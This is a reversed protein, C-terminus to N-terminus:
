KLKYYKADKAHEAIWQGHMVGPMVAEGVLTYGESDPIHRLIFPRSAGFPIVIVDKPRMTSPGLGVFGRRTRFFDRQRAKDSYEHLEIPDDKKFRTELVEIAKLSKANLVDRHMPQHYDYGSFYYKNQTRRAYCFLNEFEVAAQLDNCVTESELASAWLAETRDLVKTIDILGANEVDIYKTRRDWHRRIFDNDDMNRNIDSTDEEAVYNLDETAQSKYLAKLSKGASETLRQLEDLHNRSEELIFELILRGIKPTSDFEGLMMDEKFELHLAEVISQVLAGPRQFSNYILAGSPSTEHAPIDDVTTVYEIRDFLMAKVKLVRPVIVDSRAHQVDEDDGCLEIEPPYDGGTKYKDPGTSLTLDQLQTLDPIYSPLIDLGFGEGYSRDVRRDFLVDLNCELILYLTVEELVELISKAYDPEVKAPHPATMNLLSYIRDRPDSVKFAGTTACLDHMTRQDQADRLKDFLLMPGYDGAVRKFIMAFHSWGIAHQGLYVSPLKKSFHFEQVCWLRLYWANGSKAQELRDHFDALLRRLRTDMDGHESASGDQQACLTRSNKNEDDEAPFTRVCTQLTVTEKFETIWIITRKAQRYIQGMKPVQHNMETVDSQNICIADIWVTRPSDVLRLRVLAQHLHLSVKFRKPQGDSGFIPEHENLIVEKMDNGPGWSYSLAEYTDQAASLLRTELELKLETDRGPLIHLLRIEEKSQFPKTYFVKNSEARIRASKAIPATDTQRYLFKKRQEDREEPTLLPSPPPRYAPEMALQNPSSTNSGRLDSHSSLQQIAAVSSPSNDRHRIVGASSQRPSGPSPRDPSTHVISSPSRSIVISITNANESGAPIMPSPIALPPIDGREHPATINSTPPSSVPVSRPSVDLTSARGPRTRLSSSGTDEKFTITIETLKEMLKQPPGDSVESPEEREEEDQVVVDHGTKSRRLGFPLKFKQRFTHTTAFSESREHSLSSKKGRQVKFTLHTQEAHRSDKRVDLWACLLELQVINRHTNVPLTISGVGDQSQWVKVNCDVTPEKSFANGKVKISDIVFEGVFDVTRCDSQFRKYLSEDSIHYIPRDHGSFKGHRYISVDVTWALRRVGDTKNTWFHPGEPDGGIRHHLVIAHGKYLYLTGSRVLYSTAQEHGKSLKIDIVGVHSRESM